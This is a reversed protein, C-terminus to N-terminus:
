TLDSVRVARRHAVLALAGVVLAAGVALAGVVLSWAMWSMSGQGAYRTVASIMTAEGPKLTWAVTNSAEDIGNTDTVAGPFSIKVQIDAREQRVSSLDASGSMTVLEGSRRFSLQYRSESGGSTAALDHLEDFSLGTFRLRSGVYGDQKYPETSARGALQDPIKFQPGPDSEQAPPVAAVIDGSVLDDSSVAM